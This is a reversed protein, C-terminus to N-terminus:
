VKPDIMRKVEDLSWKEDNDLSSVEIIDYAKSTLTVLPDNNTMDIDVFGKEWLKMIEQNIHDLHEEYLEPMLDQMKDTMTYLFEGSREDIGAIELGGALILDDILSDEEENM